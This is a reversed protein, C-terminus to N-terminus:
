NTKSLALLAVDHMHTNGANWDAFEREGEGVDLSGSTLQVGHICTAFHFEGYKSSDRDFCNHYSAIIQTCPPLRTLKSYSQLCIM